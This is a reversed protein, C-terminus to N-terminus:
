SARVIEVGLLGSDNGLTDAADGGIRGIVVKLLEGATCSKATDTLETRNVIYQAPAAVTRGGGGVNYLLNGGNTSETDGVSLFTGYYVVDGSGTGANSHHMYLRFTSWSSPFLVSFSVSETTGADFLMATARAYSGIAAGLTGLAPTGVVLTMNQAPVWIKEDTFTRYRSTFATDTALDARTIRAPAGSTRTLVDGDTTLTTKAILNDTLASDKALEAMTIKKNTGSSAMTTDSVDVVVLLDADDLNTGTIATLESIRKNPM